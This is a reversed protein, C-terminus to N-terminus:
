VPVTAIKSRLREIDRPQGFKLIYLKYWLANDSCLRNFRKSVTALRSVNDFTLSSLILTWVEDPIDDAHVSDAMPVDGDIATPNSCDM